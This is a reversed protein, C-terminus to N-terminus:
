GGIVTSLSTSQANLVSLVEREIVYHAVFANVAQAQTRADRCLPDREGGAACKWQYDACCGGHSNNDTFDNDCQEDCYCYGGGPIPLPPSHQKAGGASAVHCRGECSPMRTSSPLCADAYDLCCDLHRACATDCRCAPGPADDHGSTTCGRASCSALDNHPGNHPVADASPNAPRRAGVVYRGDLETCGAESQRDVGAMRRYLWCVTSGAALGTDDGGTADSGSDLGDPSSARVDDGGQGAPPDDDEAATHRPPKTRRRSTLNAYMYTQCEDEAACRERCKAEEAVEGHWVAAHASYSCRLGERRLWLRPDPPTLVPADEGSTWWWHFKPPSLKPPAHERALGPPETRPAPVHCRDNASDNFPPFVASRTWALHGSLNALSLMPTAVDATLAGSAALSVATYGLHAM